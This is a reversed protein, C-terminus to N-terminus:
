SNIKEAFAANNPIAFVCVIIGILRIWILGVPSASHNENKM